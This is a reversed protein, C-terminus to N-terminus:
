TEPAHGAIVLGIILPTPLPAKFYLVWLDGEHLHIVAPLNAPPNDPPPVLPWVSPHGTGSSKRSLDLFAKDAPLDAPTADLAAPILIVFDRNPAVGQHNGDVPILMYRMTYVGPQIQQQRYDNVRNEFKIAGVLEGPKIQGFLVGIGKDPMDSAAISKRLWVEAFSGKSDSVRFAAPWMADRVPATLEAPPPITSAEAKYSPDSQAHAVAAFSALVCAIALFPRPSTM